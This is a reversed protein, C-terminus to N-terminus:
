TLQRAAPPSWGTVEPLVALVDLNIQRQIEAPFRLSRDVVTGIVITALSLIVGVAMFAALTVVSDRMRGIPQTPMEPADVIQLRNRVDSEVQDTALRAQEEKAFADTFRANAKDVEETLTNIALQEADPRDGRAPAPNDALYQELEGRAAELEQRYQETLPSIFGAAATSQSVDADIQWQLFTEITADALAQAVQPEERTAAVHFLNDGSEWAGISARVDALIEPNLSQADVLGSAGVVAGVFADTQLLSHLQRATAAAASPWAQDTGRVQTLSSLYTRDEVLLVGGSQYQTKQGAVSYAGLLALLLFPVVYLLPRRFFTDLLRLAVQSPM